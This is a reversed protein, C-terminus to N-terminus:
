HVEEDDDPKRLREFEIIAESKEYQSNFTKEPNRQRGVVKGEVFEKMREPSENELWVELIDQAMYVEKIAIADEGLYTEGNSDEIFSDHIQLLPHISYIRSFWMIAEAHIMDIHFSVVISPTSQKSFVGFFLKFLPIKNHYFSHIDKHDVEVDLKYVDKLQGILYIYEQYLDTIMNM